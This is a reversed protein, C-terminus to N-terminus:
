IIKKAYKGKDIINCENIFQETTKRMKNFMYIIIYINYM